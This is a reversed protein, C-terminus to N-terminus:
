KGTILSDTAVDLPDPTTDMAGTSGGMIDSQSIGRDELGEKIRYESNSEDLRVLDMNKDFEPNNRDVNNNILDNKDYIKRMSQDLMGDPLMTGLDMSSSDTGIPGGSSSKLHAYTVGEALNPLDNALKYGEEAMEDTYYSENNENNEHRTIAKMAPLIHETKFRTNVDPLGLQQAISAKYEETENEFGPAYTDILEGITKNRAVNKKLVLALARYGMEPSDFITFPKTQENRKKAKKDRHFAYLGIGGAWKTDELNGPNNYFRPTYGDNEYKLKMGGTKPYNTNAIFYKLNNRNKYDRYYPNRAM